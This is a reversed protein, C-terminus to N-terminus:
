IELCNKIYYDFMNANSIKDDTIFLYKWVKMNHAKCYKSALNCYFIAEGQKKLVVKDTAENKNKIEILYYCDSDEVVFDPEYNKGGDYTINFEKPAPRLWKLVNDDTDLMKAFEWEPRSDFKVESFVSKKINRFLVSKIDVNHNKDLNKYEEQLSCERDKNYGYTLKINYNNIGVISKELVGEKYKTNDMIEHYIKEAINYKNMMVINKIGNENINIKHKLYFLLGDILKSILHKCKLYDIEPYEIIIEILEKKPNYADFDIVDGKLIKTDENNTINKILLDNETISYNYNKYNLEFDNFIYESPKVITTNIKPIPIFAEFVKNQINESKAVIYEFVPLQSNKIIEAYDVNENIIETKETAIKYIKEKDLPKYGNQVIANEVYEKLGDSTKYLVQNTEVTENINNNAYFEKNDKEFDIYVNLHTEKYTELNENNDLEIIHDLKFISDGKQAEEIIEDFKDHATLYVGDIEDDGVREGFPLRLGRGVMQERLIKSVAMRLPVITYLNNVDWGEKLKDVHIVIEMPSDYKEVRLLEEINADSETKTQKSHVILTKDIYKGDRFKDSCIYSKIKEAHETDKCVVLMFPKVMKKNNNKCYVYLKNKVKEHFYVGDNLMLKDFEESGFKYESLNKRTIAYPTRTFGDSIAKSLTYDYVVNKFNAQKSKINVYPTATFELGMIPNLENLSEFGKEARYHHSEDMLMVLNSIKSLYSFFSDGINEHLKRINANEKDFKSINYIYININSEIYTIQKNKYDDGTIIKPKIINTLGKFVYKDSNVSGLDTKLKEYITTNPAVVFFNNINYNTWLYTIFAGMLRTKGVGTALAFTFSIFDREFDTCIPYLKHVKVLANQISDNQDVNQMINELIRLSEAQPKRLSMIGIINEVSYFSKDM